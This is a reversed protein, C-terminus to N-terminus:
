HLPTFKGAAPHPVPRQPIEFETSAAGVGSTEGKSTGGPLNKVPGKIRSDTFEIAGANEWVPGDSTVRRAIIRSLAINIVKQGAPARILVNDFTTRTDQSNSVNVPQTGTPAIIIANRLESVPAHGTMFQHATNNELRVNRAKTVSLNGNGMGTSNGVPWFGDIDVECTEHPSIGDPTM